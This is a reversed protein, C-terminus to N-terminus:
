SRGRRQQRGRRDTYGAAGHRRLARRRVRCRRQRRARQHRRARGREPLIRERLRDARGRGGRGRDAQQHGDGGGPLPARRGRDSDARFHARGRNASGGKAATAAPHHRRAAHGDPEGACLAYAYLPGATGVLTNPVATWGFQAVNGSGDFRVTPRSSAVFVVPPEAAPPEAAPDETTVDPAPEPAAGQLEYGGSLLAQGPDCWATMPGEVSRNGSRPSSRPSACTARRAGPHGIGRCSISSRFADFTRRLPECRPGGYLICQRLTNTGSAHFTM